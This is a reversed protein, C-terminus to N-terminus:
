EVGNDYKDLAIKAAAMHRKVVLACPASQNEECVKLHWALANLEEEIKELHKENRQYM